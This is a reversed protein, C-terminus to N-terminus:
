RRIEPRGSGLATGLFIEVLRKAQANRTGVFHGDYTNDPAFQVVGTSPAPMADVRSAGAIPRLVTGVIPLKAGRVLAQQTSEPTYGDGLGYVMLFDRAPDVFTEAFDPADAPGFFMSLLGIAPHMRTLSQDGFATRVLAGVDKPKKKELVSLGVEGGVGTLVVAKLDDDAALAAPMIVTGQSHGYYVIRSDDFRINGVGAVTLTATKAFRILALVDSSGQLVNDRAARPNQLNFFVDGPDVWGAEPLGQRPGHMVNDFTLVAAKGFGPINAMAAALQDLGSLYDGGTGHGYIVLPWGGTPAASKPISLGVCLREHGQIVVRGNADLDIAGETGMPGPLFYPRTGQQLIPVDITGQIEHHTAPSAGRCGRMHMASQCPSMVNTNCAVLGRAVPAIDDAVARKIKQAIAAPDGTTFVTVGAIKAADISKAALFARFPAYAAHARALDADAPAPAALMARLDGDQIPAEGRKSKVGIEFVLAYKTNPRLPVGDIPAVGLTNACTLQGREEKLSLQLRVRVGDDLAALWVTATATNVTLSRPDIRDSWQTFAPATLAFGDLDEEIADVYLNTFDVGLVAGPSPYGNMDIHGDAKRRVDGPFPQRFFEDLARGGRPVEFYMRFAGVEEETRTCSVGAFFPLRTCKKDLGCVLPRRCDALAACTAGLDGTGAGNPSVCEGASSCVLGPACDATFGCTAGMGLGCVNGFGPEVPRCVRQSGCCQGEGCVSNATCANGRTSVEDFSNPKTCVGDHCLLGALCDSVQGCETGEAGKGFVVPEIETCGALLLFALAVRM